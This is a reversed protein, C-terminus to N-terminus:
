KNELVVRENLPQIKRANEGIINRFVNIQEKSAAISAKLVHWHINESCPPTTLSGTYKRYNHMAPMLWAPDFDITQAFEKGIKAPMKDWLTQLKTNKEGEEIMVGIVGLEGDANKHVLHLEMPWQKAEITHESPLHFHLQLLQYKQQGIQMFGGKLFEVQITHGNNLLKASSEKYYLTLEPLKAAAAASIDVPSQRVGDGCKSFDPSLEGWNDQNEYNWHVEDANVAGAFCGALTLM